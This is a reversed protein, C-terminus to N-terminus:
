VGLKSLFGAHKLTLEWEGFILRETELYAPLPTNRIFSAVSKDFKSVKGQKDRKWRAKTFVRAYMPGVIGIFQRFIVQQTACENQPSAPNVVISDSFLEKAYSKPYPHMYIVDTLGAAVIHKACNHCPFTNSYLVCNNIPQGIRAADTIAAMEAHVSRGYELSDMIQSDAILRDDRDFLLSNIDALDKIEPKLVGIEQLRLLLDVVVARRRQENSDQGFIFDRADNDDGEWYAGGGAAPVENCGTAKVEMNRTFIAAGVQRSLDSSRQAAANAIEMGYEERTPTITKDGFLARLFREIGSRATALNNTNVVVDSLPFVQRVRQGHLEGEEAEDTNILQQAKISWDPNKPDEPHGEAISASLRKFRVNEDSHFSLQVYQEGYVNRLLESEEPRKIQNVIYCVRTQVNENDVIESRLAAINLISLAALVEDNTRARLDNCAAIHTAYRLEIPSQTLPLINDLAKLIATTKVETVLYKFTTLEEKIIGVVAATDVGIRAVLGIILEADRPRLTM